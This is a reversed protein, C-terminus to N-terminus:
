IVGFLVSLSHVTGAECDECWGCNSDPEVETMYDCDPEICIGPQVSDLGRAELMHLSDDYGEANALLELKERKLEETASRTPTM